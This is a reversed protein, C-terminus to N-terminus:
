PEVPRPGQVSIKVNRGCLQPLHNWEQMQINHLKVVDGVSFPGPLLLPEFFFSGRITIDASSPCLFEAAINM